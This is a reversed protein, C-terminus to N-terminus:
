VDAITNNRDIAACRVCMDRDRISRAFVGSGCRACAWGSEDTLAIPAGRNVLARQALIPPQIPPMAIPLIIPHCSHRDLGAVSDFVRRCDLCCIPTPEPASVPAARQANPIIVPEEPGRQAKAVTIGHVEWRHTAMAKPGRMPVDRGDAWCEPCPRPWASRLRHRLERQRAESVLDEQLVLAPPPVAITPTDDEAPTEPEHPRSNHARSRALHGRMAAGPNIKDSYDIDCTACYYPREAVTEPLAAAQQRKRGSKKGSKKPKKTELEAIRAQAAALDARIRLLEAENTQQWEAEIQLGAIAGDTATAVIVPVRYYRLGRVEGILEGSDALQPVALTELMTTM